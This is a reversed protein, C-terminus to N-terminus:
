PKADGYLDKFVEPMQVKLFKQTEVIPTYAILFSFGGFMATTTGILEYDGGANKHYLGGGSSGPAADPTAKLYDKLGSGGVNIRVGTSLLGHTVTRSLGQPFGATWVPEGEWYEVGVPAMRITTNFWKGTDRLKLLAVDAGYAQAAITAYYVVESTPATKEDYVPVSVAIEKDTSDKICHKATLVYTAVDGTEQSRKSYIIQGSCNGNIQVTGALMQDRMQVVGEPAALAIGGTVVIAAASALLYKLM